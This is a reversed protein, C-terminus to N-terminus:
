QLHVPRRLQYPSKLLCAQGSPKLHLKVQHNRSRLHHHQLLPLHMQSLFLAESALVDWPQQQQPQWPM